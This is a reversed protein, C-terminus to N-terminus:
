FCYFCCSVSAMMRKVFEAPDGAGGRGGEGGRPPRPLEDMSISGDKNRDLKMLAAAANKIEDGSLKGNKDADLIAM